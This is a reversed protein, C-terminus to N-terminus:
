AEIKDNRIRLQRARALAGYAAPIALEVVPTVSGYIEEAVIAGLAVIVCLVTVPLPVRWGARYALAVGM